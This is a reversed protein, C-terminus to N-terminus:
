APRGRDGEAMEAARAATRDITERIAAVDEALHELTAVMGVLLDAAQAAEAPTLDQHRQLEMRLRLLGPSPLNALGIDQATM